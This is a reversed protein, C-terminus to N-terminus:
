MGPAKCHAGLNSQAYIQVREVGTEAQVAEAQASDVGASGMGIKKLRGAEDMQAALDGATQNLGALESECTRCAQDQFNDRLTATSCAELADQKAPRIAETADVM